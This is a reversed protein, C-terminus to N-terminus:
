PACSTGGSDSGEEGREPVHWQSSGGPGWRQTAQLAKEAAPLVAGWARRGREQVRSGRKSRKKKVIRDRGSREEGEGGCRSGGVGSWLVRSRRGNNGFGLKEVSVGSDGDM